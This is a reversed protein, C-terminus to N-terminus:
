NPEIFLRARSEHVFQILFISNGLPDLLQGSVSWISLILGIMGHVSFFISLIENQPM